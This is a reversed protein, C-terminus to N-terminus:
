DRDWSGLVAAEEEEEGNDDVSCYSRSNNRRQKTPVHISRFFVFAAHV